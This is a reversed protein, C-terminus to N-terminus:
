IDLALVKRAAFISTIWFAVSVALLVFGVGGDLLPKFYGPRLLDFVLFILPPALGLVWLQGKSEATKSRIVGDLRTMERLSSASNELVKSVNGGVQRGILLGALLLDLNTSGVRASLDKLVDDVSSGIKLEKLSLGIEDGLAPPVVEQTRALAQVINPSARLSNALAMGFAAASAEIQALRHKRKSSFHLAPAPWIIGLLVLVVLFSIAGSFLLVLLFFTIGIQVLAIPVASIFSFCRAAQENLYEVYSAFFRRPGSQADGLVHYSVIFACVAWCLLSLLKISLMNM